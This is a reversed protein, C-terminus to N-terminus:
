AEEKATFGIAVFRKEDDETTRVANKKNKNRSKQLARAVPSHEDNAVASSHEDGRTYFGLRIM